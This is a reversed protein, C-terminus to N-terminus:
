AGAPALVLDFRGRLYTGQACKEKQLNIILPSKSAWTDQTIHPDGKFYCQTILRRHGRAQAMYHIHAPRTQTGVSYAAPKITEYEYRGTEDTLLRIRNKFDAFQPQTGGSFGRAEPLLPRRATRKKTQFDYVGQHDAQWIDLVTNPIPQKTKHSWLRGTIVLLQGPALPPTVKGRFPASGAWFPGLIDPHTPQFKGEPAIDKGTGALHNVYGHVDGTPPTPLAHASLTLASGTTALGGLTLFDRRNTQSNM